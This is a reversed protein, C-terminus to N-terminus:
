SKKKELVLATSYRPTCLVVAFYGFILVGLKSTLLLYMCSQSLWTVPPPEM